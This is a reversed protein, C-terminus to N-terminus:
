AAWPLRRIRDICPLVDAITDVVFDAGAARLREYARGRLARREPEALARWELLPLGVENGSVALGITWMGASKGEAIGPATDDVKVCARVDRVGLRMANAFCMYPFPRGAPVEGPCVVADPDYGQAKAERLNVDMMEACYGTTSGIRAGRRRLAAVLEVTGPILTAHEALCALQLPVFREFLRDVDADSPARRHVECWRGRVSPLLTLQRLHERKETGMPVRAEAATIPVGELEFARRFAAVPAMCGFDITTGAWDFIVAEIDM